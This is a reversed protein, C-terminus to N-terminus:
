FVRGRDILIEGNTVLKGSCTRGSALDIVMVM